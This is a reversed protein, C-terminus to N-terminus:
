RRTRSRLREDTIIGGWKQQAEAQLIKIKIKTEPTTRPNALIAGWFDLSIDGQDIVYGLVDPPTNKSSVIHNMIHYSEGLVASGSRGFGEDVMKTLEVSSFAGDDIKKLRAQFSHQAVLKSGVFAAALAFLIGSTAMATRLERIVSDPQKRKRAVLYTTISVVPWVAIFGVAVAALLIGPLVKGIGSGVPASISFLLVCATAVGFAAAWFITKAFSSM